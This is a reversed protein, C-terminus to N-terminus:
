RTRTASTFVPATGVLEGAGVAAEDSMNAQDGAYVTFPSRATPSRARSGRARRVRLGPHRDDPRDTTANGTIHDGGPQDVPFVKINNHLDKSAM